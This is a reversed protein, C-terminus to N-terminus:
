NLKNNKFSPLTVTFTTGVKWTSEVEITGSHLSVIKHAISLGLGSGSHENQSRSESVKSFREFIVSLQEPPIGEGSDTITIVINPNHESPAKLTITLSDQESCFKIANNILNQWVEYLLQENGFISVEALDVELQLNKDSWQWELMILVQRIQEDIRFNSKSLQQEQELSALKLLQKSMSSLRESEMVIIGMHTILEEKTISSLSSTLALGHISTLPTQFEHSVDSVFQQKMEDSRKLENTMYNFNRALEGIEDSRSLQLNYNSYYGKALQKTANTLQKIPRVIFRSMITICILSFIFSSVLLMSIILRLEGSQQMLDPRIFFAATGENTEIPLGITNALSNNFFGFLNFSVEQNSMGSYLQGSLVTELQLPALEDRKFPSGYSSGIGEPTVWYIQYGLQATQDMFSLDQNRLEDQFLNQISHAVEITRLENDKILAKKYYFDTTLLGAIASIFTIGIFILVIKVYLTKM